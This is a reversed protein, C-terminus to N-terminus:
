NAMRQFQLKMCSIKLDLNFKRKFEQFGIQEKQKLSQIAKM